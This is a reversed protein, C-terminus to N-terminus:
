QSHFVITTLWSGARTHRAASAAFREIMSMSNAAALRFFGGQPDRLKLMVASVERHEEPIAEGEKARYLQGTGRLVHGSMRYIGEITIWIVRDSPSNTPELVAAVVYDENHRMNQDYVLGHYPSFHAGLTLGTKQAVYSGVVAERKAEDSVLMKSKLAKDPYRIAYSATLIDKPKKLTDHMKTSPGMSSFREVGLSRQLVMM